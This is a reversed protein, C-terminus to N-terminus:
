YQGRHTQNAGRGKTNADFCIGILLRTCACTDIVVEFRAGINDKAAIGQIKLNYIAPFPLRHRKCLQSM